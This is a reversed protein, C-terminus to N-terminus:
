GRRKSYKSPVSYEKEKERTLPVGRKRDRKKRM